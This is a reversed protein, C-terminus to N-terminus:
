REICMTYTDKVIFLGKTEVHHVWCVNLGRGFLSDTLHIQADMVYNLQCSEPLLNTKNEPICQMAMLCLGHCPALQTSIDYGMWHPHCYALCYAVYVFCTWGTPHTISIAVSHM